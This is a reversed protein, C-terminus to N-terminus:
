LNNALALKEEELKKMFQFLQDFKAQDQKEGITDLLVDLGTGRAAVRASIEKGQQGLNFEDLSSGFKNKEGTTDGYMKSYGMRNSEFGQQLGELGKMQGEREALNQTYLDRELGRSQQMRSRELDAQAAGAVGGSIGSRRNQAMLARNGAQYQSSIGEMGQSRLANLEPNSFGGMRAKREDMLAQLEPSIAMGGEMFGLAKDYGQMYPNKDIRGLFEDEFVEPALQKGIETGETVRDSAVQSPDGYKDKRKRDKNNKYFELDGPRGMRNSGAGGAGMGMRNGNPTAQGMGIRASGVMGMPPMQSMLNNYMGMRNTAMNVKM